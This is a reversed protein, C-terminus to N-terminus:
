VCKLRMANEGSPFLWVALVSKVNLGPDYWLSIRLVAFSLLMDLDCFFSGILKKSYEWLGPTCCQWIEEVAVPFTCNDNLLLVAVGGPLVLDYVDYQSVSIM